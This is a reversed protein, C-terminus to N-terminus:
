RLSFMVNWVVDRLFQLAVVPLCGAMLVTAPVLDPQVLSHLPAAVLGFGFGSICQVVTSVFVISLVSAFVLGEIPAGMV